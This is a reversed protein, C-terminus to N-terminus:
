IPKKDVDYVVCLERTIEAETNDSSPCTLHNARKQNARKVSTIVLFYSNGSFRELGNIRKIPITVEVDEKVSDVYERWKAQFTVFSNPHLKEM